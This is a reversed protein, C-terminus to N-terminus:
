LVGGKANLIMMVGLACMFALAIIQLTKFIQKNLLKQNIKAGIIAATFIVVSMGLAMFIASIAASVYGKLEFALLFVMIVGPCPILSAALTVGLESKGNKSIELAKCASCSCGSEHTSWKINQTKKQPKLNKYLLFLSIFVILVGCAISTIQSAQKTTESINSLAFFSVCVLIFSGFVHLFGVKMAFNLADMANGGNVAFFSGTLSKAHGPGAAHTFGYIFSFFAIFFLTKVSNKDSKMLEKIRDLFGLSAKTIADFKQTDLADIQAYTDAKSIQDPTKLLDKLAPKKDFEIAVDKTSLELFAINANSNQTFYIDDGLDHAKSNEFMFNFFGGKDFSEMSLVLSNKLEIDLAFIIKFKLRNDQIFLEYDKSKLNIKQEQEKDYYYALNTLYENPVLYDLLNSRVVKLENEDLENNANVDYSQLMLQTFNESFVWIFTISDLRNQNKSLSVSVHATPSYLACLACSFASQALLFVFVLVRFIRM